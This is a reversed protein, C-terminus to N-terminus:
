GCPPQSTPKAFTLLDHRGENEGRQGMWQIWAAGGRWARWKIWARANAWAARLKSLPPPNTIGHIHRVHVWSRFIGRRLNGLYRPALRDAPILHTLTLEPAYAATWGARLATLVIDNDGGSSLTQGRRDLARRRPDGTALAVAYASFAARRIVMGAGPPAVECFRPAAGPLPPPLEMRHPGLDRLALMPLFESLAAAPDREFLPRIPGGWVGVKPECAALGLAHRLYDRNLLNDDDVFVFIDGCGEAFGRLRAKTLGLEDERVHRGHIHWDLSLITSLPVDSRNDVVLLEWLSKDLTQERLAELTLELRIPHPNHTCLVVTVPIPNACM